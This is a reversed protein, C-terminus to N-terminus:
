RGGKRKEWPLKIGYIKAVKTLRKTSVGLSTAASAANDSRVVAAQIIAGLNQALNHTESELVTAGNANPYTQILSKPM